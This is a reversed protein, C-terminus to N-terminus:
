VPAQEETRRQGHITAILRRAGGHNRHECLYIGQWSGLRLRGEAIPLTLEAGLLSSKLHAPMDDSGEYIHRFCPSNEPIMRNLFSEFDHRVDPDANENITLAASTHCLFLHLLGPSVARIAPLQRIIEDSILHFGRRRPALEIEQQLWYTM